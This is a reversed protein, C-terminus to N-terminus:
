SKLLKAKRKAFEDDTLLGKNKLEGLREIESPIDTRKLKYIYYTTICLAVVILFIDDSTNPM